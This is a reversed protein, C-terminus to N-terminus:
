FKSKECFLLLLMNQSNSYLLVVSFEMWLSIMSVHDGTCCGGGGASLNWRSSSAGWVSFRVWGGLRVSVPPLLARAAAGPTQLPCPSQPVSVWAAKPQMM